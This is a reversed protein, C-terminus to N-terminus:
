IGVVVPRQENELWIASEVVAAQLVVNLMVTADCGTVIVVRCAGGALSTLRDYGGEPAAACGYKEADPPVPDYLQLAVPKGVPMEMLLPVAAKEPVGVTV